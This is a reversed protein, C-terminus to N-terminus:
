SRQRRTEEDFRQLVRLLRELRDLLRRDSFTKGQVKQTLIAMYTELEDRTAILREIRDLQTASPFDTESIEDLLLETLQQQEATAAM